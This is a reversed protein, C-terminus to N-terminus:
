RPEHGPGDAIFEQANHRMGGNWGCCPGYCTGPAEEIGEQLARAGTNQQWRRSVCRDQGLQESLNRVQSTVDQVIDMGSNKHALMPDSLDTRPIRIKMAERGDRYDVRDFLLM